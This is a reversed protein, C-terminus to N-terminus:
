IGDGEKFEICAIRDECGYGEVAVWDAVSRSIFPGYTSHKCVNVWLSPNVEILSPSGDHLSERGALTFTRTVDGDDTDVLAVVPYRGNADVCIVRAKSGFYTYKKSMDIM